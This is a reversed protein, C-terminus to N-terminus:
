VHARGIKSFTSALRLRNLSEQTIGDATKAAVTALTQETANRQGFRASFYGFVIAGTMPLISVWLISTLIKREIGARSKRRNM